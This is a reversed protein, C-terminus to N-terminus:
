TITPHVLEIHGQLAAPISYELTRITQEGTDLHTFTSFDASFMENAKSVPVSFSIWDGADTITTTQVGHSSMFSNVAAVSAQTPKVFEEVEEKTLHQGYTASSPTSVAMLQEELGAMNNSVMAIRLQLMTEPSAPGAGVFGEPAEERKEHLLMNGFLPNACVASIFCAFLLASFKVM